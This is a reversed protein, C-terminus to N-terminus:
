SWGCVGQKKRSAAKGQQQRHQKGHAQEPAANRKGRLGHKSGQCSAPLVRQAHANDGLQAQGPSHHHHQQPRRERRRAVQQLGKECVGNGAGKDHANGASCLQRHRQYHHQKQVVALQGTRGHEDRAAKAPAIAAMAKTSAAARRTCRM